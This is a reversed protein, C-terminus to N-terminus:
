ETDHEMATEGSSPLNLEFDQAKEFIAVVVEHGKRAAIKFINKVDEDNEIKIQRKEGDVTREQRLVQQDTIIGTCREVEEAMASFTFKNLCCQSFHQDNEKRALFDIWPMSEKADTLDNPTPQSPFMYEMADLASLREKPDEQLLNKILSSLKKDDNHFIREEPEFKHKKLDKMEANWKNKDELYRSIFYLVMGASYVDVKFDYTDTSLEPARFYGNRSFHSVKELKPVITLGVVEFQIGIPRALGFDAIKIQIDSIQQPNENVVLINGPHIDRHVWRISHLFVLGDLIQQFVQEYFRPSGEAKIIQAGGIKNEYIFKELSLACLEMQICLRDEDGVKIIWSDVYKIVNRRSPNFTLLATIEREQYKRREKSMPMLKIAYAKGDKRCNVKVVHGFAGTGLLRDGVCDFERQYALANKIKIFETTM